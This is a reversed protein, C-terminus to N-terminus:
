DQKIVSARKMMDMFDEENVSGKKGRDAENIMDNLENDSIKEGLDQAIKKSHLL